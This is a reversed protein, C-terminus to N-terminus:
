VLLAGVVAAVAIVALLLVVAARGLRVLAGDPPRPSPGDDHAPQLMARADEADVPAVLVAYGGGSLLALHPAAGGADDGRVHAMVGQSRLMGAAMEAHGRSGFTGVVEM